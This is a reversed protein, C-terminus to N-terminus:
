QAKANYIAGVPRILWFVNSLWLPSGPYSSRASKVPSRTTFMPPKLRRFFLKAM